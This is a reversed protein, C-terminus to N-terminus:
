NRKAYVEGRRFVEIGLPVCVLGILVLPWLDHWVAGLGQGDLVAGRIWDLAYTAPSVVSLAQM